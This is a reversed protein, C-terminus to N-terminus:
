SLGTKCENMHKQFLELRLNYYKRVLDYRREKSVGSVAVSLFFQIREVQHTINRRHPSYIQLYSYHCGRPGFTEGTPPKKSGYHPFTSSPLLRPHSHTGIQQRSYVARLLCSGKSSNTVCQYSTQQYSRCCIRVLVSRQPTVGLRV